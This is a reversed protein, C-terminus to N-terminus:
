LMEKLLNFQEQSLARPGKGFKEVSMDRVAVNKIGKTKALEALKKLDDETVGAIEQPPTYDQKKDV